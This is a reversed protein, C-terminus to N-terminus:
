NMAAIKKRIEETKVKNDQRSYIELLGAM